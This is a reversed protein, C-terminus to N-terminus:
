PLYDIVMTGRAFGTGNFDPNTAFNSTSSIITMVVNTATIETISGSLSDLFVGDPALPTSFGIFPYKKDNADNRIMVYVSLIKTIDPLGHPANMTFVTNMDWSPVDVVAKIVNANIARLPRFRRDEAGTLSNVTIYQGAGPSAGVIEALKTQVVAQVTGDEFPRSDSTPTAPAIYKTYPQNTVASIRMFEGNLYVIGATMDFNGANNSFVCGSIILGETDTDFQSLMSQLVAWVEDGLVGSLDPHYIPVGGLQGSDLLKKM